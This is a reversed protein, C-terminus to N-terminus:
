MPLRFAHPHQEMNLLITWFRASKRGHQLRTLLTHDVKSLIEKKDM